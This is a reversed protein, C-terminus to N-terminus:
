SGAPFCCCGLRSGVYEIVSWLNNAAFSECWLSYVARRSSDVTSSKSSDVTSSWLSDVTLLYEPVRMMPPLAKPSPWWSICLDASVRLSWDRSMSSVVWWSRQSRPMAVILRCYGWLVSVVYDAQNPAVVDLGLGSFYLLLESSSLLIWTLISM